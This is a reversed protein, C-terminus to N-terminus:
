VKLNHERLLDYLRPRSIDLLRATESLNGEAQTLASQLAELEAARRVERLKRVPQVSAPALGLDVPTIAGDAALAARKVTSQLERVNGPWSHQAIAAMAEATFSMPPLNQEQCWHELFTQAILTADEPRERLPPINVTIESLRYYLDERFTGERSMEKLDRNTAAVIRLDVDISRRGGVREIQREQLMRLLKAQLPAPLDGIEDLLLTGKNAQEVKGITTKHAGTFAGKEYGFLESELLQEPIAACNIAVYPGSRGSLEHLGRALVEKGTGSEGLLLVCVDAKAFRALQACIDRMKRNCTILGPVGVGSDSQKLERNERELDAIKFARGIILNLVDVDIPKQYYDYAGLSISKLAYEREKQGTMVIVKATPAIAVLEKLTALGESPGDADPPLGLDLLVVPPMHKRLTEVASARDEALLVDAGEFAWKLQRRLGPDDEVVMIRNHQVGANM